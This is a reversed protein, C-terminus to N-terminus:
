FNKFIAPPQFTSLANALPLCKSGLLQTFQAATPLAGNNQQKFASLALVAIGGMISVAASNSFQVKKSPPPDLTIAAGSKSLVQGKVPSLLFPIHFSKIVDPVATIVDAGPLMAVNFVEPRLNPFNDGVIGTWDDADTANKLPAFIFM